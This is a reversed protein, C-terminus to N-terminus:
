KAIKKTAVNHVCCTMLDHNCCVCRTCHGRRTLKGYRFGLVYEGPPLGKPVRLTDVISVSVPFRGSCDGNFQGFGGNAAYKKERCPPQFSCGENLPDSQNLDPFCPKFPLPMMAWMSGEPQTGSVLYRGEISIRTGNAWELAMKGAFPIPNNQMCDETLPSSRPCLRYSYGGGHNARVSWKAEVDAGARWVIGTPRPPLVKSGLDGQVNNATPVFSLQTPTWSPSGGAMGCADYV